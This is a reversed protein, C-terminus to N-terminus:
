LYENKLNTKQTDEKKEERMMKYFNEREAILRRHEEIMLIDKKDFQNVGEKILKHILNMDSGYAIYVRGLTRKVAHELWNLNQEITRDPSKESLRIAEVDGLFKEWFPAIKRRSKNKDKDNESIFNVYTKLIGSIISGLPKTDTAIEGVAKNAREDRLQLEIRNWGTIGDELTYGKSEREFNKEYFRIQIRSQPQGFYLTQGQIKGTSIDILEINRARKMKSKCLGRKIKRELSNISFYLKHGDKNTKDCYTAIDDIALDLRTFDGNNLIIERFLETWTLLNLSEYMRCGQGTMEVHVGMDSRGGYLFRINNFFLCESYGYKGTQQIFEVDSLCFLDIIKRVDPAFKFTVQVWDVLSRLGGQSTNQAGRNTVPPVKKYDLM